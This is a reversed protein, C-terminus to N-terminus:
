RKEMSSEDDAEETQEAYRWRDEEDAIPGVGRRRRRPFTTPPPQAPTPSAPRHLATSFSCLVLSYMRPLHTEMSRQQCLWSESQLFSSRLEATRPWKGMEMM